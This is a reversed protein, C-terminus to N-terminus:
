VLNGVPRSIGNRIEPMNPIPADPGIIAFLMIGTGVMIIHRLKIPAKTISGKASFRFSHRVLACSFAILHDATEPTSSASCKIQKKKAIRIVLTAVPVASVAVWGIKAAM